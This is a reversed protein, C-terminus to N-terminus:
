AAPPARAIPSSFPVVQDSRTPHISMRGSNEAPPPLIAVTIASTFGNCFPCHHREQAPRVQTNSGSAGNSNPATLHHNPGGSIDTPVGAIGHALDHLLFTAAYVATVLIIIPTSKGRRILTM